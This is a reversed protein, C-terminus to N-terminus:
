TGSHLVPPEKRTGADAERWRRDPGASVALFTYCGQRSSAVDGRRGMGADALRLRGLTVIRILLAGRPVPEHGRDLVRQATQLGAVDIEVPDM